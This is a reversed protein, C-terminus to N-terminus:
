MGVADPMEAKKRHYYERRGENKKTKWEEFFAAEEQTLDVGDRMRKQIDYIVLEGPNSRAESERWIRHKENREARYAAYAGQEEATIDLGSKLRSSIDKMREKKTPKKEKPPKPPRSARWKRAKENEKERYALYIENEEPALPMDANKRKIIDRLIASQTPPKPPKPPMEAKRKELWEKHAAYKKEKRLNYDELEEPTLLGAKVRASLERNKANRRDLAARNRGKLKEAHAAAEEAMRRQEEIEMPTVIDAPVEFAGIFNLHIDVRQRRQKGRGVGEYIILKEIFENLMPTTLESFDTYRKVLEIFRDTKLSDESWTDIRERLQQMTSELASQEDDYEGMMREFHRDSIKGTANAEYLKKVLSDLEGYRKEAQKLRKKSDKITEEQQLTSAERVRQVFERENERVYWSVRQITNLILKEVNKTPIYHMTCDRTLQRYSSCICADDLWKGQALSTRHTLKYGCDACQLLGTLRHPPGEKKPPRRVTKRLRQANHWTEEDVIVPMANDFIYQEDETTKRHKKLKYSEKATKGLVKRGIYEPRNLIYGVTTASWAYPDAYKVSRVPHGIRKWHESPIPVQEARLIRGIENVGKGDIVMQFIRRVNVAAEEDIVLKDKDDKDPLFGYPVSGSCRLGKEMRSKFVAKIKRSTEAVSYENFVDRILSMIDFGNATDYNDEAAIFRVNHEEFTRKLLGVEVVDRGIRSQDKIIVIAVNDKRVEDLLEYLGPRNFNAGSWGDDVFHRTNPFGNRQAYTELIQKQNQISGSEGKLLDDKSLRSYLATIRANNLQKSM